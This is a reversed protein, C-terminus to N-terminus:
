LGSVTPVTLHKDDFHSWVYKSVMTFTASSNNSSGNGTPIRRTTTDDQECPLNTAHAIYVVGRVKATSSTNAYSYGDCVQGGITRAKTRAFTTSGAGQAFATTPDFNFTFQNTMTRCTYTKAGGARTCTKTGYTVLDMTTTKGSSAKRSVVVYDEFANGKRVATITRTQPGFGFGLAGGRGNRGARPTGTPRPTGSPRPRGTGRFPRGKTSTTVVVQYSTVRSLAKAVAPLPDLVAARATPLGSASLTASLPFVAALVLYSTRRMSRPSLM